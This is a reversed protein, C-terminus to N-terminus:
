RKDKPMWNKLVTIAGAPDPSTIETAQSDELVRQYMLLRQGDPSVAFTHYDGGAHAMRAAIIRVVPKPADHTFASGAAKWRM